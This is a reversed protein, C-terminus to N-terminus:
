DSSVEEDYDDELKDDIDPEIYRDLQPAQRRLRPIKPEPKPPSYKKAGVEVGNRITPLEPQQVPESLKESLETLSKDLSSRDYEKVESPTAPVGLEQANIGINEAQHRLLTKRKIEIPKLSSSIEIKIADLVSKMEEVSKSDLIGQYLAVLSESKGEVMKWLEYYGDISFKHLKRLRENEKKLEENEDELSQAESVVELLTDEVKEIISKKDQTLYILKLVLEEFANKVSYIQNDIKFVIDSMTEAVEVYRGVELKEKAKKIYEPLPMRGEDLVNITWYQTDLDRLIKKYAEDYMDEYKVWEQRKMELMSNFLELKEKTM